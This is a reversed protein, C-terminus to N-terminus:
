SKAKKLEAELDIELNAKMVTRYPFRVIGKTKDDFIIEESEIRVIRGRFNRQGDIATEIKVKALHGAFKEFDKLSYLGRELGPSSVELLYASPIFDNDDLFKEISRSVLACDEHTVGGKKDVFVRITLNKNAGVTEAHVFELGSEEAVQMAIEKIQENVQHKMADDKAWIFLPRSVWM